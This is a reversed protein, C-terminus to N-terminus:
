EGRMPRTSSVLECKKGNTKYQASVTADNTRYKGGQKIIVPVKGSLLLEPDGGDIFDHWIPKDLPVPATNIDFEPLQENDQRWKIVTAM